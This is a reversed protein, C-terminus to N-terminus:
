GESDFEESGWERGLQRNGPGAAWSKRPVVREQGELGGDGAAERSGARCGGLREQM